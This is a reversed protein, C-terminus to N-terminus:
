VKGPDTLRIYCLLVFIAALVFTILKSYFSKSERQASSVTPPIDENEEESSSACDSSSKSM